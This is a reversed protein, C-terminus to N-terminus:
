EKRKIPIYKGKTIRTKVEEYEKIEMEIIYEYATGDGIIEEANDILNQAAAKLSEVYETVKPARVLEIGYIDKLQWLIVDDALGYLKHANLMDLWTVLTNTEGVFLEKGEESVKVATYLKM